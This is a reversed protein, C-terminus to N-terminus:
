VFPGPPDPEYPPPPPEPPPPQVPPEPSYDPNWREEMWLKFLYGGYNDDYPWLEHAPFRDFKTYPKPPPWKSKKAKSNQQPAPPPQSKPPTKLIYPKLIRGASYIGMVGGGMFILGPYIGLLSWGGTTPVGAISAGIITYGIYLMAGSGILIEGAAWVKGM